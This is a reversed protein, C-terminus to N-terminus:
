MKSLNRNIFEGLKQYGKENPHLGDSFLTEDIKKDKKLFLYGADTYTVGKTFHKAALERNLKEVREEMNRRPLIGMLLIGAAPQKAQIAKLLFQLGDIIEGDSNFGLNNTGIMVVIQKPSISDLEGHYIRWLVNEIRDWGYGLNVANKPEFYKKWSEQGRAPQGAPEGAWYHTISNGIFVLKPSKAKNYALVDSHRKEWEYMKPERRQRVPKTTSSNGVPEKMITRITKEYADAYRMMGIDNPHTGDVMTEIDQNIENKALYYINGVGNASLSDFVERLAKNVEQYEKKKAPYMEEDTYSDHETLLIPIGPRKSQLQRVSEAVRKKVETAAIGTLNPLCDLLYISANLETILSIVEKELRGNGSFGLNIVPRDLKRGLISTWALGPRTACGGQAISTGYVVIPKEKRVALPTFVSDKPVSITMWKVTNYLPLYLNYEFANGYEDKTVLNTFRYTITDGFSYKGACWLWKGNSNKTYMDIGSVGTAPMHPMQLNGDVAYKVVIEDANTRFKVFIGATNESLGWVEKRVTQEARAPLRDYYNKIENPWGQGELVKVTDSAPNWTKYEKTNQACAVNLIFATYFTLIITLKM